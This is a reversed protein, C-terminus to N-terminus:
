LSQRVKEVYCGKETEKDQESAGFMCCNVAAESYVEYFKCKEKICKNKEM